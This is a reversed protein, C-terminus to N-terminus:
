TATPRTPRTAGSSASFSTGSTPIGSYGVTAAAGSAPLNIDNVSAPLPGSDWTPGSRYRGDADQFRLAGSENTLHLSRNADDYTICTSGANVVSAGNIIDRNSFIRSVTM